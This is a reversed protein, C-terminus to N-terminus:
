QSSGEHLREMNNSGMRLDHRESTIGVALVVEVTVVDVQGDRGKTVGRRVQLIALETFLLHHVGEQTVVAPHDGLTFGDCYGLALGGPLGHPGEVALAEGFLGADVQIVGTIRFQLLDSSCVDSSW